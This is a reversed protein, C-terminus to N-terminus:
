ANHAGTHNLTPPSAGCCHQAHKMLATSSVMSEMRVSALVSPISNLHPDPVPVLKEDSRLERSCSAPPPCADPGTEKMFPNSAKAPTILDPPLVGRAAFITISFTSCGHLSYM